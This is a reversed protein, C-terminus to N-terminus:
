AAGPAEAAVKRSFGIIKDGEIVAAWDPGCDATGDDGVKIKAGPMGYGFCAWYVNGPILDLGGAPVNSLAPLARLDVDM